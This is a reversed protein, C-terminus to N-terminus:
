EYIIRISLINCWVRDSPNTKVLELKNLNKNENIHVPITITQPTAQDLNVVLNSDVIQGNVIGKFTATPANENDSNLDRLTVEIEKIKSIEKSSIKSIPLSVQTADGNEFVLGNSTESNSTFVVEYGDSSTLANTKYLNQREKAVARYYEKKKSANLTSILIDDNYGNIEDAENIDNVRKLYNSGVICSYCAYNKHDYKYKQATKDYIKDYKIEKSRFSIYDNDETLDKCDIRHYLNSTDGTNYENKRTYYIENPIVTLENNTSSVIAYNNYVKMGCNLGQMFSVVSVNNLIKDWEDDKIVPMQIDMEGVMQNYASLALNLNFQISNQIVNLKHSYFSSDKKEPNANSNFIVSEDDEFKYFLDMEDTNAYIGLNLEAINKAINKGKIQLGNEGLNEYIWNSFIQAKVYYTIAKLNSLNVELNQIEENIKNMEDSSIGISSAKEYLKDLKEQLQISNLKVGNEEIPQYLYQIGEPVRTVGDEMVPEIELSLEHEGSLCIEEAQDENYSLLDTAGDVSIKKVVNKAILYGTKAYYIDEIKGEVTMYNDLTYNITLDYKDSVYRASYPMYSKLVYDQTYYTNTNIVTSYSGDKNKYLMQGYEYKIEKPLSDYLAKQRSSKLKEDEENIKDYEEGNFSYKGHGNEIGAYTLGRDGVYVIQEDGATLVEPVRTPSYIYYGDYLTYLIAPIYNQVYSKNANSMGLNTALTNFFVNTSAEIISRLSDAVSSLDENATNLEFAVMADHTADILKTDYSTQRAITDVSGSLYYSLVITVPLIIIAFIVALSQIKM